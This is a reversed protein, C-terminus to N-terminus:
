NRLLCITINRVVCKYGKWNMEYHAILTVQESIKFWTYM